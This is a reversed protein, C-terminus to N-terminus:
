TRRTYIAAVIASVGGMAAAQWWEILGPHMTRLTVWVCVVAATYQVAGLARLAWDSRSRAGLGESLGRGADAHSSPNAEDSM